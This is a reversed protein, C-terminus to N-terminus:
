ELLALPSWCVLNVALANCCAAFKCVCCVTTPVAKVALPGSSLPHGGAARGDRPACLLGTTGPLVRAL